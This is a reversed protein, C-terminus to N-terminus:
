IINRQPSPFILFVKQDNIIVHLHIFHKIQIIFWHCNLEVGSCVKLRKVKWDSAKFISWYDYIVIFFSFQFKLFIFKYALCWSFNKNVTITKDLGYDFNCKCHLSQRQSPNLTHLINRWICDAPDHRQLRFNLYLSIGLFGM